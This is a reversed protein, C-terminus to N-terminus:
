KTFSIVEPREIHVEMTKITSKKQILKHVNDTEDYEIGTYAYTNNRIREAIPLIHDQYIGIITQMQQEDSDRMFDKVIQKIQEIYVYLEAKLKKGEEIKQPNDTSDIYINYLKDYKVLEADLDNKAEGFKQQLEEDSIYRFLLDLKYKIINEKIEEIKKYSIRILDEVNEVKGKSIEINLGCPQSKSGCVATLVRNEDNFITGGQSKCVICKRSARLRDIKAKKAAFTLTDDSLISNKKSVYSSDYQDKLKYYEILANEISIHPRSM